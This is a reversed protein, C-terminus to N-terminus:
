TFNTAGPSGEDRGKKLFPFRLFSQPISQDANKEKTRFRRAIPTICYYTGQFTKARRSVSVLTHLVLACM